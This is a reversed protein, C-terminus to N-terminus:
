RSLWARIVARAIPGAQQSGSGGQEKVVAVAIQPDDTPGYAIFLADPSEGPAVEASGTKGGIRFGPLAATSAWGAEVGYEMVEALSRATGPSMARRWTAPEDDLFLRPVPVEGDNGIAATLLALHLPSFQLEGQGFASAALGAKADLFGSTTSLRGAATPLPFPVESTLGLAEAMARLREAGLQVGLEAFYTNCSYAFADAVTRTTRGPPENRSVIRVGDIFAERPCSVRTAPTVLGHELAAALTVTKFTSGPTYLGQTARNLLPTDPAARLHDWEEPTFNPNFGPSSVMALIDGRRPDLAVVAGRSNGLAQAAVRQLELDITLQVDDGTRSEHLLDRWTDLPTDASRGLLRDAAASEVGVAGARESNFGLLHATGPTTYDRQPQGDQGISTAALVRGERDLIRGRQVRAEEELLREGTVAVEQMLDSRGVQWYGLALAVASFGGLLALGVKRSRVEFRPLRPLGPGAGGV